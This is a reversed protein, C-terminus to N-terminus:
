EEDKTLSFTVNKVLSTKGSVKTCLSSEYEREENIRYARVAYYYTKGFEREGDYLYCTSGDTTGIQVWENDESRYVKYGAAYSVATWKIKLTDYDTATVKLGTVKAPNPYDSVVDSYSGYVNKGSVVRYARVKYYYKTNAKLSKNTYSLTKSNVTAVKSYTGDPMTSRYVQYGSAGSVKDWSVTVSTTKPTLNVNQVTAPKIKVKVQESKTQLTTGEANTYRMVVTFYYYTGSTLSKVTYTDSPETGTYIKTGTKGATTSQYIRVEDVYDVYDYTLLASNYGLSTAELTIEPLRNVYCSVPVTKSIGANLMTVTITATGEGTATVLGSDSVTAVAIDSSVFVPSDTSQGTIILQKTDGIATFTISSPSVTFDAQEAVTVQCQRTVECTEGYVSITANGAKVATVLGTSSVTAVSPDSSTYVFTEEANVPNKTITIQGTDGPHISMCTPNITFDILEVTEREVTVTCQKSINNNTARITITATGAGIATVLGTDSVTAV